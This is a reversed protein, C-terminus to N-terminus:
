ATLLQKKYQQLKSDNYHQLGDVRGHSLHMYPEIQRPKKELRRNGIDLILVRTKMHM